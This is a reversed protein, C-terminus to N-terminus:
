CHASHMERAYYTGKVYDNRSDTSNRAKAGIAECDGEQLLRNVAYQDAWYEEDPEFKGDQQWDVAHGTEHAIAFRYFDAPMEECVHITNTNPDYEADGNTQCRGQVIAPTVFGSPISRTAIQNERPASTQGQNSAGGWNIGKYKAHEPTNYGSPIAQTAATPRTQSISSNPPRLTPNAIAIMGAIAGMILLDFEGM